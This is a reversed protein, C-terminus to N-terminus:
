NGITKLLICDTKLDRHVMKKQHIYYLPICIMTFIRLVRKEPIIEDKYDTIIKALSQNYKEMIIWPFEDEDKVLDVMGMIM